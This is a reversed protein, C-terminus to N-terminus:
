FYAVAYHQYLEDTSVYTHTMHCMVHSVFWCQLLELIFYLRYVDTAQKLVMRLGYAIASSKGKQSVCSAKTSTGM